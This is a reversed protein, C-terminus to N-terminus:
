ITKEWFPISTPEHENFKRLSIIFNVLLSIDKMGPATEFRSNIDIGAMGPRMAGAIANVDDPGIGGSLLYPVPMDYADLLSWDFKKGSGGRGVCKTDFVFLDVTNHYPLLTKFDSDSSIGAAKFVTYGADKLRHCLDPSESGHLQVIHIGYRCCTETIEQFDANVFVGVPRIFPPLSQVSGPDLLSADRPSPPYFIFGMLMPSLAAVDTINRADRMGCVKIMM